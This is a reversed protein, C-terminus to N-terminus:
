LLFILFVLLFAREGSKWVDSVGIFWLAPSDGQCGKRKTTLVSVMLGVVEFHNRTRTRKKRKVNWFSVGFWEGIGAKVIDM